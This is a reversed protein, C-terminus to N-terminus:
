IIENVNFGFENAFSELQTELRNNEKELDVLNSFDEVLNNQIKLWNKITLGSNKEKEILSLINKIDNKTTKM